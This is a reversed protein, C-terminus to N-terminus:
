RTSPLGLDTREGTKSLANVFLPSRELREIKGGDFNITETLYYVCCDGALGGDARTAFSVAREVLMARQRYKGDVIQGGQFVNLITVHFGPSAFGAAMKRLWADRTEPTRTEGDIGVFNEAIVAELADRNKSTLAQIYSQTAELADPLPPPPPVAALPAAAFFAILLLARM